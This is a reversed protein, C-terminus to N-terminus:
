KDMNFYKRKWIDFDVLNVIGDQNFDSTKGVQSLYETKWINYDVINVRNDKNADGLKNVDTPKNVIVPADVYIKIAISKNVAPIKEKIVGGKSITKSTSLINGTFTDWWEVSYDGDPLGPFVMNADNVTPPTKGQDIVYGQNYDEHKIWAMAILDNTKTKAVDLLGYGDLSPAKTPFYFHFEPVIRSGFPSKPDPECSVEVVHNGQPLNVTYGQSPNPNRNEQLANNLSVKMPPNGVIDLYSVTFTSPNNYSFHFRYAVPYSFSRSCMVGNEIMGAGKSSGFQSVDIDIVRPPDTVKYGLGEINGRGKIIIEKTRSTSTTDSFNLITPIYRSNALDVQNIFKSIGLFKDFHNQPEVYLQRHWIQATGASGGFLSGWIGNILHIGLTDKVDLSESAKATPTLGFEGFMFPKNYSNFHWNSIQFFAQGYDTYNKYNHDQLIDSQQIVDQRMSQDFNSKTVTVPHKYPDNQKTFAIMETAWNIVADKVTKKDLGPPLAESNPAIENMLEFFLINPSYGYRAITYYIRQKFYKKAIPNIWFDHTDRVPGGNTSLYPNGKIWAYKWIFPQGFDTIHDLTLDLYMNYKKALNLTLDLNYAHQLNYRGVPLPMEELTFVRLPSLFLRSYNEGNQAMKSFTTELESLFSAGIGTPEANNGIPFFTKGSNSFSFYHPNVKSIQIFGPNSSAVCDFTISESKNTGNRDITEVYYSYQGVETPTFRVRWEPSGIPNGSPGDYSQYWFAPVVSIKNSPSTFLVLIKVDDPDFPNDFNAKVDLKKEFLDNQSIQIAYTPAIYILSFIVFFIFILYRKM